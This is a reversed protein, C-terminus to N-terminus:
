ATDHWFRALLNAAVRSRYQATSRLDDIPAIEQVMVEQAEALSGTALASETRPLRVVTPAVSGIAIRPTDTRVAAMVIKSIAQAARTGVKRFWQTGPVRPVEIAVILEAPRMVSHRYGTYFRTLPVRRTENLSRLVVTADVAALVPLSDGAPSANAINGGVTGRNQIQVGGVLRAADVMMPLWEQVAPSRIMDTYTTLAGIILVDDAAQIGRLEDLRWLDLYRQSPTQGFELQVYVDTCGAIPMLENDDRLFRLAEDLSRPRELQLPGIAARM